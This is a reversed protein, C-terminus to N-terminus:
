HMYRAEAYLWHGEKRCPYMNKLKPSFDDKRWVTVYQKEKQIESDFAKRANPTDQVIHQYTMFEKVYLLGNGLEGMYAVLEKGDCYRKYGYAQINSLHMADALIVEHTEIYAKAANEAEDKQTFVSVGLTSNHACDFGGDELSIRYGRDQNDSHLWSKEDTVIGKEIDAKYLLYIIDGAHLLVPITEEARQRHQEEMIGFLSLQATSTKAM